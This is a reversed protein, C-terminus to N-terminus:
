FAWSLDVFAVRGPEPIPQTTFPNRANLHNWYFEDFVNLVGARLTVGSMIGVGGRLDLLEYGPTPAENRSVSVRNQESVATGIAEVYFRGQPEEYRLSLSALLPAVGIVPEDLTDDRGWLYSGSVGATVRETIGVSTSADLGYFTAEGNVYQFV